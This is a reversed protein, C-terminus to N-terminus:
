LFVLSMAENLRRTGAADAIDAYKLTSLTQKDLLSAFHSPTIFVTDFVALFVGWLPFNEAFYAQAGPPDRTVYLALSPQIGKEASPM